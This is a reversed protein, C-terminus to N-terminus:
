NEETTNKKQTDPIDVREVTYSMPSFARAKSKVAKPAPVAQQKKRLWNFAAGSFLGRAKSLESM